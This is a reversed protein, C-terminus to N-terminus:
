IIKSLNELIKKSPTFSITKRSSIIFEVKTKPNRGMREKKKILKFNGINKLLFNDLKINSSLIQFIDSIIKKAFNRPYGTKLTLDKIIDDKNFKKKLM